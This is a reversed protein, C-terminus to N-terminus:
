VDLNAQEMAKSRGFNDRPRGVKRPPKATGRGHGQQPPATGVGNRGVKKRRIAEIM